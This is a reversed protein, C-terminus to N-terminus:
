MAGCIAEAAEALHALGDGMPSHPAQYNRTALLSELIVSVENLVLCEM